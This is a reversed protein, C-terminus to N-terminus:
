FNTSTTASVASSKGRFFQLDEARYLYDYADRTPIAASNPFATQLRDLEDKPVPYFSIPM